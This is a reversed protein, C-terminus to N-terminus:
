NLQLGSGKIPDFMSRSQPTLGDEDDTVKLTRAITAIIHYQKKHAILIMPHRVPHAFVGTM